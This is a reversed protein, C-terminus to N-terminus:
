SVFGWSGLFRRPVTNGYNGGLLLFEEAFCVRTISIDTLWKSLPLLFFVTLLSLAVCGLAWMDSAPSMQTM